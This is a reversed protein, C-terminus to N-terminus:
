SKLCTPPSPHVQMEKEPRLSAKTKLCQAATVTTVQVNGGKYTHTKENNREMTVFAEAELGTGRRNSQLHQLM